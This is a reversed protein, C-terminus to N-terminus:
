DKNLLTIFDSLKDSSLTGHFEFRHNPDDWVGSYTTRAILFGARKVSAIVQTNRAGFPYAFVTIPHGLHGEIIHKGGLIEKDLGEDSTIKTLIPHTRSHGGIEMGARDLEIVEAWSMWHPKQHDMPNTFIFFTGKMGYKKLLPFAYEYQNRWGDDFSLIVPKQPLPTGHDFYANVDAFTITTYSSSAIHRLQQELLEPTVDYLDQYKSENPVHPRVSHYILVPIKVSYPSSTASAEFSSLVSPVKQSTLLAVRAEPVGHELTDSETYEEDSPWAVRGAPVYRVYVFLVVAAAACFATTV